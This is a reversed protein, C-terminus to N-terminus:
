IIRKLKVFPLIGNKKLIGYLFDSNFFINLGKHLYLNGIKLYCNHNPFYKTMRLEYNNILDGQSKILNKKSNYMYIFKNIANSRVSFFYSQYHYNVQTSDNYGYLEANSKVALNIFHTVPQEIIFSDNIFFVYDYSLYDVKSLLYIWKGFDYTQVNEIEHYDINKSKYYESLKENYKLSKSNAVMIDMANTDFYNMTQLITKLRLENDTHTAVLLLLKKNNYVPNYSNYLKEKYKYVIFKKLQILQTLLKRKDNLSGKLYTKGNQKYLKNNINNNNVLFNRNFNM